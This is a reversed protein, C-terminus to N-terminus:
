PTDSVAAVAIHMVALGCLAWRNRRSIGSLSLALAGVLLGHAAAWRNHDRFSIWPLVAPPYDTILHATGEVAATLLAVCGATRDRRSMQAATALLAPFALRDVRRHVQPSLLPIGGVIM